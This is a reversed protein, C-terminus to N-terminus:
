FVQYHVVLAQVGEEQGVILSRLQTQFELTDTSRKDPDLPLIQTSM